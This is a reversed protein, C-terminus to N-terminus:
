KLFERNTKDIRSFHAKMYARVQRLPGEGGYNVPRLKVLNDEIKWAYLDHHNASNALWLTDGVKAGSLKGDNAAIAYRIAQSDKRQFPNETPFMRDPFVGEKFSTDVKNISLKYNAVFDGSYQPSTQLAKGLMVKMMGIAILEYERAVQKEWHDIESFFKDINGVKLMAFTFLGFM